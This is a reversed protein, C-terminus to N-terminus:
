LVKNALLSIWIWDIVWTGMFYFPLHGKPASIDYTVMDSTIRQSSIRWGVRTGFQIGDEENFTMPRDCDIWISRQVSFGFQGNSYQVWLRDIGKLIEIPFNLLEERDFWEGNEKDVTKIMLRYTERDAEQWQQNQLLQELNQYLSRQVQESVCSLEDEQKPDIDIDINRPSAQLCTRALDWARRDILGQILASLRTTNILTAYFVITERWWLNDCNQLLLDENKLVSIQVAALYSQFSLHCFEFEDDRKVLLESVDVIKNLFDESSVAGGLEMLQSQIIDLLPELSRATQNEQVMTLAVHQLIQQSESYDLPMDIFKALPRDGLQLRCIEGYLKASSQPLRSTPALSHFTAIMNLLLPNDAMGALEPRQGIQKILEQAKRTAEEKVEPTNRNCNTYREQCEYWQEIFQNRQEENFRKVFLETPSRESQSREFYDKYAKPRSTLLFVSRPYEDIQTQIWQSAQQRQEQPIEDFGDFMVLAKGDRLMNEAWNPPLKLHKGEPLRPVHEDTILDSLSPQKAIVEHWKCERLYLLVPLLKPTKYRHRVIRFRCAFLYAIHRLLTTKGYGGRALIVLNSYAPIRQVRSLFDWIERSDQQQHESMLTEANSVRALMEVNMSLKLPVYVEELPIPIRPNLGETRYQYCANAQCKLYKENTGALQWRIAESLKDIYEMLSNAHQKGRDSFVEQLRNLFSETYAAWITTVILVPFTLGAQVWDHQRLFHALQIGSLGLPSWQILAQVIKQMFQRKEQQTMVVLDLSFQIKQQKYYL